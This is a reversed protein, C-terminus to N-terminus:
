KGEKTKLKRTSEDQSKKKKYDCYDKNTWQDIKTPDFPRQCHPCHPMMGSLYSSQLDRFKNLRFRKISLSNVERAFNNRKEIMEKIEKDIEDIRSNYEEINEAIYLLAEFAHIYANCKTCQVLRNKVDIEYSPPNCRCIKQANRNIRM